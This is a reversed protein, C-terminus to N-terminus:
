NCFTIDRLGIFQETVGTTGTGTGLLSRYNLTFSDIPGAYNITVSGTNDNYNSVANGRFADTQSTGGGGIVNAGRTGTPITFATNSGTATLWVQDDYNQGGATNKDIDVIQFQVQYVPAGFTFTVSYGQNTNHTSNMHLVYMKTTYTQGPAAAATVTNNNTNPTPNSTAAILATLTPTPGPGSIKTVSVSNATPTGALKGSFTGTSFPLIFKSQCSPGGAWAASTGLVSPAAWAAGAAATAVGTKQLFERRDFEGM